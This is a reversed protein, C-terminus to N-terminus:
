RTPFAQLPLRVLSVEPVADLADLASIPVLAQTLSEYSSEPVIGLGLLAAQVAAPDAANSGVIVVRVSEDVLDLGLASGAAIAAETGKDAALRAIDALRSDLKASKRTPLGEGPIIQVGQDLPTQDSPGDPVLPMDQAYAAAAVWVFCASAALVFFSAGRPAGKM